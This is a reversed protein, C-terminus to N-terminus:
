LRKNPFLKVYLKMIFDILNKNNPFDKYTKPPLSLYYDLDVVSINYKKAIFEKDAQINSPNYPLIKLAELAEERTSIGAAIQSSLTAKRYDMNYKVPM